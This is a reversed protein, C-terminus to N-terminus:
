RPPSVGEPRLRDVHKPDIGPWPVMTVAVELDHTGGGSVTGRLPSVDSYDRGWATTVHGLGVVQNNTPDFDMWGWGPIYVSFWAHSADESAAMDPDSPFATEIYGSVYRAALGMSRLCGVAVHVFDQCVGHRAQMVEVVPTTVTTTGPEYRFDRHIRDTLDVVADVLPRHATFSGAGYDTFVGGIQVMPSTSRFRRALRAVQSRDEEIVLRATEWPPSRDPMEVREVEVDSVATITLLDFTGEVSFATVINGFADFRDSMTRPEPVVFLETSRCRQRATDRPHLHAENSSQYAMERYRFTTRHEVRFRRAGDRAGGGVGEGVGQMMPATSDGTGAMPRTLDVIGALRTPTDVARTQGSPGPDVTVPSAVEHFYTTDMSRHLAALAEQITAAAALLDQATELYPVAGTISVAVASSAMLVEHARPLGTVAMDFGALSGCVTRQSSRDELLLRVMEDPRAATMSRLGTAQDASLSRLVAGRHSDTYLDGHGQPLVRSARAALVRLTMDARELYQGARFFRLAGVDPMTSWVVGNLSRCGDLVNQLWRVREPRSTVGSANPEAGDWLQQCVPWLDRPLVSRAMRLNNRAAGLCSLVSSPNEVDGLVYAVVSTERDGLTDLRTHGILLGHRDSFRSAPGCLTVLPLWGVDAGVPLDLHTEGHVLVSRAIMEARELYRGAWYSADAMRALLPAAQQDVAVTTSRHRDNM